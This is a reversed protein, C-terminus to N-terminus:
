LIREFKQFEINFLWYIRKSRITPSSLLASLMGSVNKNYVTPDTYIYTPMLYM